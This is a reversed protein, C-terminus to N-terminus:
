ESVEFIKYRVCRFYEFRRTNYVIFHPRTMSFGTGKLSALSGRLYCIWYCSLDFLSTLDVVCVCM